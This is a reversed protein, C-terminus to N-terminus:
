SWFAQIEVDLGFVNDPSLVANASLVAMSPRAHQLEEMGFPFCYVTLFFAGYPRNWQMLEEMGAIFSRFRHSM